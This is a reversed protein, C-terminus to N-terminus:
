LLEPNAARRSRLEMFVGILLFLSATPVSALFGLLSIFGLVSGGCPGFGGSALLGIVSLLCVAGLVTGTRFAWNM